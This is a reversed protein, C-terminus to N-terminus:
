HKNKCNVLTSLCFLLGFIDGIETGNYDKNLKTLEQVNYLLENKLAVFFVWLCECLNPDCNPPYKLCNEQCWQGMGTVNKHLAVPVCVQSRVVLQSRSGVGDINPLLIANPAAQQSLRVNPPHGFTSMIRIDACNRFMEQDGCGIAGTGNSCLGWTNGSFILLPQTFALKLKYASWTLIIFGFYMYKMVSFYRSKWSLVTGQFGIITIFVRMAGNLVSIKVTEFCWLM